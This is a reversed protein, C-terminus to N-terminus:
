QYHVLKTCNAAGTITLIVGVDLSDQNQISFQKEFIIYHYFPLVM